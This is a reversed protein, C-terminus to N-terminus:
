PWSGEEVRAAASICTASYSLTEDDRGVAFRAEIATGALAAGIISSGGYTDIAADMIGGPHTAAHRLLAVVQEREEPTM